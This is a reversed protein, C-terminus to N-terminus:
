YGPLLADIREHWRRNEKAGAAGFVRTLEDATEKPYKGELELLLGGCDSGALYRNIVKGIIGPGCKSLAASARNGINDLLWDANDTCWATQEGLIELVGYSEIPKDRVLALIRKKSPPEGVLRLCNELTSARNHAGLYFPFPGDGVARFNWCEKCVLEIKKLEALAPRFGKGARILLEAKVCHAAMRTRKPFEEGTLGTCEALAATGTLKEKDELYSQVTDPEGGNEKKLLSYRTEMAKKTEHLKDYFTALGRSSEIGFWPTQPDPSAEMVDRAVRELVPPPERDKFRDLWMRLMAMRVLLGYESGYLNLSGSYGGIVRMFYGQAKDPDDWEYLQGMRFLSAGKLSAGARHSVVDYRDTYFVPYQHTEPFRDEYRNNVILWEYDETARRRYEASKPEIAGSKDVPGAPQNFFRTHHVTARRFRIYPTLRCTPWRDIIDNYINLRADDSIDQWETPAYLEVPGNPCDAYNRILEVMNRQRFTSVYNTSEGVAVEFEKAAEESYGLLLAIRTAAEQWYGFSEIWRPEYRAAHWSKVLQYTVIAAKNDGLAEYAKGARFAAGPIMQSNPYQEMVTKCAFLTAKPDKSYDTFFELMNWYDGTDVFASSGPALPLALIDMYRAKAEEFRKGRTLEAAEAFMRALQKNSDTKARDAWAENGHALAFLLIASM